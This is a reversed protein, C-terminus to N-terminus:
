LAGELRDNEGLMSRYLTTAKVFDEFGSSSTESAILATIVAVADTRGKIANRGGDVFDIWGENFGDLMQVRPGPNRMGQLSFLEEWSARPVPVARVPRELARALTDALDNPAVRRPGELEVVRAGTWEAQLLEAAVRGVDKAAVM